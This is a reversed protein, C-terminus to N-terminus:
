NAEKMPEKLLDDIKLGLSKSLIVLKEANPLYKDNELDSLTSAPIGTEESLIQLSWNKKLRYFKINSGIKM